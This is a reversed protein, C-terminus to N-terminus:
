LNSFTTKEKLVKLCAALVCRESNAFYDSVKSQPSSVSIKDTKHHKGQM